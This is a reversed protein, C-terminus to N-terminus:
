SGYFSRLWRHPRLAAIQEDTLPGREVAAVNREVNACRACEPSRRRSPRTRSASASRSRPSSTWPSEWTRRRDGAGAGVGAGQPRGRLLPQPLRRRPVGHRSPRQRDALRRRVAGARDRRRRGGRGGPVARGGPEPRLRQLDGAGHRCPGVRRAEGREGAPPRQDLRRLRPDEGGAEAGRDRRALEGHGVWEDSWVHFQQVDITELGLRELSAETQSVVWDRPYADDAPVGPRRRGACTRRRSRRRCTCRTRPSGCWM